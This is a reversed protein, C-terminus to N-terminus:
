LIPRIFCKWTLIKLEEGNTNSFQNIRLFQKQLKERSTYFSTGRSTKDDFLSAVGPITLPVSGLYADLFPQVIDTGSIGLKALGDIIYKMQKFKGLDKFDSKPVTDLMYVTSPSDSAPRAVRVNQPDEIAKLANVHNAPDNYANFAVSFITAAAGAVSISGIAIRKFANKRKNIKM